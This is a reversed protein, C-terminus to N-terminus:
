YKDQYLRIVLLLQKKEPLNVNTKESNLGTLEM